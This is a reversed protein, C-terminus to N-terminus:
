LKLEYGYERLTTHENIKEEYVGGASVFGCAEYLAIAPTNIDVVFLRLYQAGAERALQAASDVSMRGVGQRQCSPEVGFRDFYVAKAGPETWEVEGAAENKSDITFASLIRDGDELVYLTGAEIDDALYDFPYHENWIDIGNKRMSEVIRHFMETILPLDSNRALRIKM